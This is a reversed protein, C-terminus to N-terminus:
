IPYCSYHMVQWRCLHENYCWTEICESYFEEVLWTCCDGGKHTWPNPQCNTPAHYYPTENYGCPVTGGEVYFECGICGFLLLFLVIIRMM